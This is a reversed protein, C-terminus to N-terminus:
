PSFAPARRCARLDLSVFVPARPDPPPPKPPRPLPPGRGRGTLCCAHLWPLPPAPRFPLAQGAHPFPSPRSCLPQEPAGHPFGRGNPFAAGDDSGRIWSVARRAQVAGLRPAAPPQDLSSPPPAAGTPLFAATAPLPQGLATPSAGSPAMGTYFGPAPELATLGSGAHAMAATSGARATTAGRLPVRARAPAARRPRGVCPLTRGRRPREGHGGRAPSRAGQM